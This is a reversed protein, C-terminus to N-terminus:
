PRALFLQLARPFRAAWANETHRGGPAVEFRVDHGALRLLGALRSAAEVAAAAQELTDGERDGTDLWVRVAPGRPRAEVWPFIAGDAFWLSPSFVGAFGYVEPRELAAYLSILGGMSAGALGTHWRDPLTRYRADVLPKLTDALFAAYRPGLGEAGLEPVPFPGYESLRGGGRPQQEIASVAVVIVPQGARASDLAAEDAQWEQQVFATAADFANQGDHMYLVPYRRTERAYGPPLCVLVDRRNGLEPSEVAPLAEVTGHRTSPPRAGGPTDAWRAVSLRVTVPALVDLARNEQALGDARTEVAPWGGRTVKYLLLTGRPLEVELTARGRGDRRFAWGAAGPDWGNANAGLSLPAGPPTGRPLREIEFRVRVPPPEAPLAQALLALLLV